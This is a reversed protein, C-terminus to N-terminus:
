VVERYFTTWLHAAERTAPHFLRKTPRYSLITAYRQRRPWERPSSMRFFRRRGTKRPAHLNSSTGHCPPILYQVIRVLILLIGALACSDAIAPLRNKLCVFARLGHFSSSHFRRM